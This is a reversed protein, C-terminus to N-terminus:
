RYNISETELVLIYPRVSTDYVKLSTLRGTRNSFVANFSVDGNKIGVSVNIDDGKQSVTAKDLFILEKLTSLDTSLLPSIYKLNDDDSREVVKGDVLYVFRSTDMDLRCRDGGRMWELALEPIRGTNSYVLSADTFDAEPNVRFPKGPRAPALRIRFDAQMVESVRIKTLALEIVKDAAMATDTHRLSYGLAFGVVLVAAVRVAYRWVSQLNNKAFRRPPVFKVATEPFCRPTLLDEIERYQGPIETNNDM